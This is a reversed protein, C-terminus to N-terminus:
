FYDEASALLEQAERKAFTNMLTRGKAELPARIVEKLLRDHLKRNYMLRAYTRAFEVKATLNVDGSIRIAEEFHQRGSEPDGGLAAPRLSKLIGLYLHVDGEGYRNDHTLIQELLIEVKPLEALAQWDSRNARISILWALSVTFLHPDLDDDLSAVRQRYSEFPLYRLGCAGSEELCLAKEALILSKDALLKTRAPTETFRSAYLANLRSAALLLESDEPAEQRLADLTLLLTPVGQAVIEPDNQELIATGLNRGFSSFSCGNLFLTVLILFSLYHKL